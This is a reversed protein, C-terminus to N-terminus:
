HAFAQAPIPQDSIKPGKWRLEFGKGGQANFYAATIPHYGAQLAIQASKPTMGHLGDHDILLEDGIWLRSGDDSKLTLTYIGDTPVKVFGTYRLAFHEDRTRHEMDPVKAIGSAVVPRNEELQDLSQWGGEFAQYSLGPDPPRFFQLAPRLSSADHHYFNRTLTQLSRRGDLEAFVVVQTSQDLTLTIPGPVSNWIEPQGIRSDPGIPNAVITLPANEQNSSIVVIVTDLFHEAEPEAGSVAEIIVEPPSLYLELNALTPCALAELIRLRIADAQVVPFKLIRKYGITTGASIKQWSGQVQAEIEFRAIRQGLAIAEQLVIHDVTTPQDFHVTLDAALVGDDTAWYTDPDGDVAQGPGFELEGRESIKTAGTAGTADTPEAPPFARQGRTESASIRLGRALDHAFIADLAVRLELLRTADNEHVLGRRDVPLNLLFNGNRGVSAYYIDLLAQVSKVQDDQDAHYYWGPRISVDCEAPIWASGDAHGEGLQRFKPTGPYFDKARLMSWNTESAYGRENGVWRCGPGGDSFIIANPQHKFVTSRFLDWDYVQKKGNPGEGNAGDFWVEFIEGYQTLVEELQKAFYQNYPDGTGYLPNNRDWPSLYVGFKLGYERCADSLERLVDGKGDKWPSSQVDHDTYASPWICYGDHHKATIIVGKMGADKFTKVWQRCDLATPNFAEPKENGHGWEIDTFTNMNFHIFAYYEMRNWEIQAPTPLAGHPKPPAVKPALIKRLVPEFVDAQRMFGLDTPHSADVTGYNDGGAASSAFTLLSDEGLLHEGRLYHLGAVGEELLTQYSAFLARRNAAHHSARDQDFLANSNGRDEVLLIPTHPRLARLRRVFPACREIVIKGNMNPLCDLIYVAADVEGLLDALEPDMRGNGSFGLNLIPRELRRGLIASHTMGPRSACGGQNISTGYFVLPLERAASRPLSAKLTAGEPVGIELRDISNYLPLYLLFERGAAPLTSTPLNKALLTQGEIRTPKSNGLWYWQNEQRLYLDVGSVGTAPMHPMSLRDSGLKWRALIRATDSTFRVAIGSSNRSLNWVPPRVVGEAKSPLRDFPAALDTWAQGEVALEHAAVWHIEPEPQQFGAGPGAGTFGPMALGPLGLLLTTVSSPSLLLSLIPTFM